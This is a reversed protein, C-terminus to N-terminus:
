WDWDGDDDGGGYDDDDDCGGGLAGMLVAGTLGVALAGGGVMVGMVAMGLMEALPGAMPRPQPPFKRRFTRGILPNSNPVIEHMSFPRDFDFRQSSTLQPKQEFDGEELNDHLMRMLEPYTPKPNARLADCFATTMAGGPASYTPQSDASCDHDECGSFLQVDGLSHYPNTEEKWRGGGAMNSGTWSFPLDLGTGSHCCDLVCTLKVGEPLPKVIYDGIEDDTIMGASEFDLPCITENMGDEEYGNPDEQQAGHGSFHFFLVDGRRVGEVLWRLGQMINAKTPMGGGQGDDTLTRISTSRWGYTEKLLSSINHVDNICGKLEAETHPYNCGILLARRRGSARIEPRGSGVHPAPKPPESNTPPTFADMLAQLKEEELKKAAEEEAKKKEEAAKKRAVAEAAAKKKRALEIKRKKDAEAAAEAKRKEEEEEAKKKEEEAKRRAEEELEKVRKELEAVRTAEAEEEATKKAAELEAAKRAAEEEARKKADEKAQIEQRLAELEEQKKKIAAEMESVMVSVSSKDEVESATTASAPECVQGM